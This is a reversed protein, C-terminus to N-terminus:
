GSIEEYKKMNVKKKIKSDLYPRGIEYNQLLVIQGIFQKGERQVATEVRMVGDEKEVKSQNLSLMQTVHALKRVDEAISEGGVDRTLGARNTQSATVVLISRDQALGRLAKWTSDLQHRYEGRELPKLLDAYDVVVVDPIFNQYYELNILETEIDRVSASYSPYTILKLDGTRIFQRYFKQKTRIESLDIPDKKEERFKIDYLKDTEKFYPIKILKKKIPKGNLTQWMRRLMANETMELSIFLVKLGSFLAKYGTYWLYHTKGRKMAGLWSLFDGRNFNGVCEGLEGPFRFLFENEHTFAERIAGDDELLDVGRGVPREVNRYESILREALASEGKNVAGKIRDQLRELSRLKFYDIANKVTYTLNQIQINEWDNSLQQLFEAILEVEDDDQIEKQKKIFIEEIAKEPAQTTHEFFEWVWEAIITSFSSKFLKPQAIGRLQLLFQTSTIMHTLIRREESLDIKKRTLM